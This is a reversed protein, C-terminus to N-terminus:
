PCSPDAAIDPVARSVVNFGPVETAILQDVYIPLCVPVGDLPCATCSVGFTMVLDCVDYDDNGGILPVLPRSDIIGELVVGDIYGADPSFSGTMVGQDLVMGAGDVDIEVLLPNLVFYPNDVFPVPATGNTEICMDQLGTAPDEAATLFSLDPDATQADLFVGGELLLGILPGIGVPEVWRGAALDVLYTTGVVDTPDVVGGIESTTFTWPEVGCSWTLSADYTTLPALPLDPVFTLIGNVDSTTGLVLLGAPDFVELTANPEVDSTWAEVSTRYYADISGDLPFLSILLNDNALADLDNCDEPQYVEFNAPEQDCPGNDIEPAGPEMFGDADQDWDCNRGCDQDIGDYWIEDADPNIDAVLDDCDFGGSAKSAHGDADFDVGDLGDCNQDVDDGVLDDAAPNTAPDADDCDDGGSAASAVGDGDIDVGDIGDCNNDIDDGVSDGAGPFANPDSDDCDDGGSDESAVGDADADIGDIGDCNNDVADGVADDADPHISADDDDCDESEAFGDKDADSTDNGRNPKDPGGGGCAALLLLAPIMTRM